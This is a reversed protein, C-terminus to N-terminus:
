VTYATLGIAKWVAVRDGAVGQCGYENGTEISQEVAFGGSIWGAATASATWSITFSKSVTHDVQCDGQGCNSLQINLPNQHPDGNGVMITTSSWVGCSGQRKPHGVPNTNPLEASTSNSSWTGRHIDRSEFGALIAYLRDSGNPRCTPLARKSLGRLQLSAPIPVDCSVVAGDASSLRGCTIGGSIAPNSHVTYDRAGIRVTGAGSGDVTFNFPTSQFAGTALSLSCSRAFIESRAHDWVEIVAESAAENVQFLVKVTQTDQGGQSLPIALVAPLLVSAGGLLRM